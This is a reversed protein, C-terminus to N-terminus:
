LYQTCRNCTFSNFMLFQANCLQLIFKDERLPAFTLPKLLNLFMKKKVSARFEAFSHKKDTGQERNGTGQERNGTGQERNGTGQERRKYSVLETVTSTSM